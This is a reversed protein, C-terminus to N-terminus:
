GYRQIYRTVQAEHAVIRRRTRSSHATGCELCWNCKDCLVHAPSIASLDGGCRECPAGQELRAWSEKDSMGEM